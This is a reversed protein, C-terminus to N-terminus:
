KQQTAYWGHTNTHDVKHKPENQEKIKDRNGKFFGSFFGEKLYDGQKLSDM